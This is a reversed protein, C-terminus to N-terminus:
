NNDIPVKNSSPTSVSIVRETLCIYSHPGLPVVSVWKEHYVAKKKGCVAVYKM